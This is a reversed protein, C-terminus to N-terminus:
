SFPAAIVEFRLSILRMRFSTFVMVSTVLLTAFCLLEMSFWTRAIESPLLAM